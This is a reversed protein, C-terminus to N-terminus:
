AHVSCHHPTREHTPNDHTASPPAPTPNTATLDRKFARMTSHNALLAQQNLVRLDGSLAPDISATSTRSAACFPNTGLTQAANPPQLCNKLGGPMSESKGTTPCIASTSVNITSHDLALQTSGIRVAFCAAYLSVSQYRLNGCTDILQKLAQPLEGWFSGIKSVAVSRLQIILAPWHEACVPLVDVEM